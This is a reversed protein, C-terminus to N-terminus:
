LLLYTRGVQPPVYKNKLSNIKLIQTLLNFETTILLGIM